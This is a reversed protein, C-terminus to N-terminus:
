DWHGSGHEYVGKWYERNTIMQVGQKEGEVYM